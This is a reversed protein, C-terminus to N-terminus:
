LSIRTVTDQLHDPSLHVYQQTTKINAHGMLLQIARMNVNQMALHSGFSHRLCHVGWKGKTIGARKCARTLATCVSSRYLQPMLFENSKDFHALAEKAKDNLPIPRFKGSKSRLANTSIVNIIDGECNKTKLKQLEGLRMGTNALLQWWHWHNPSHEYIKNLDEKSHYKAPKDENDAVNEIKFSPVRHKHQTNARNLLSRIDSLIGNITSPALGMAYKEDVFDEVMELTLKHLVIDGFLGDIHNIFNDHKKYYTSPYSREFWKLYKKSYKNYKIGLGGVEDANGMRLDYKLRELEIEAFSVTIEGLSKRHRIGSSDVWNLIYVKDRKTITAM